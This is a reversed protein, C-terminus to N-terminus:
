ICGLASLTQSKSSFFVQKLSKLMELFLDWEKSFFILMLDGNAVDVLLGTMLLDHISLSVYFCAEVLSVLCHM